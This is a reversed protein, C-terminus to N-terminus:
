FMTHGCNLTLDENFFTKQEIITKRFNEFFQIVEKEKETLM